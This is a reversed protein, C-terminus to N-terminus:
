FRIASTAPHLPEVPLHTGYDARVFGFLLLLVRTFCLSAVDKKFGAQWLNIRKAPLNKQAQSVSSIGHSHVRDAVDLIIKGVTYWVGIEM